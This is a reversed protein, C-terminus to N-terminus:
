SREKAKLTENIAILRMEIAGLMWMFAFLGVASAPFLLAIVGWASGNILMVWAIPLVLCSCIFGWMGVTRMLSVPGDHGAGAPSRGTGDSPQFGDGFEGARAKRTFEAKEEDSMALYKERSRPGLWDTEDATLHESM